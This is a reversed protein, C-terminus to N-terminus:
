QHKGWIQQVRALHTNIINLLDQWSEIKKLLFATTSGHFLDQFPQLWKEIHADPAGRWNQAGSSKSNALQHVGVVDDHIAAQGPDSESEFLIKTSEVEPWYQYIKM